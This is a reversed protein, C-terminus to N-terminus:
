AASEEAQPAPRLALENEVLRESLRHLLDHARDVIARLVGERLTDQCVHLSADISALLDSCEADYVLHHTM